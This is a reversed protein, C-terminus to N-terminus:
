ARPAQDDSADADSADAEHAPADPTADTSQSAESEAVDSASEGADEPEIAFLADHDDSADVDAGAQAADDTTDAVGALLAEVEAEIAAASTDVPETGDPETGDPETGVPETGVPETGDPETGDELSAVEDAPELEDVPEVEVSADDADADADADADVAAVDDLEDVDYADDDVDIWEESVHVTEADGPDAAAQLADIAREALEHWEAAEDAKGLDELVTAFAAFLAPSYSHAVDRQLEPIRLEDLAAQTQGLDLRAGSRAIALEVRVPTPLTAADVSRSLELAKEPRGLGRECDVMLPLQEDSGTIRRFTRLERLALAFDGLQYATIALTERVVGIRGARRSAALAHQHAAKPDDDILNAVMALHRAVVDANDKDLTKLQM